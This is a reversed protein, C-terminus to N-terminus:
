SIGKLQRPSEGSVFRVALGKLNRNKRQLLDIVELPRLFITREVLLIGKKDQENIFFYDLETNGSRQKVEEVAEFVSLRSSAFIRATADRLSTHFGAFVEIYSSLLPMLDIKGEAVPLNKLLKSDFRTDQTLQKVDVYVGTTHYIKRPQLQVLRTGFDISHFPLGFHQVHDRLESVFSFDLNNSALSSRRQEAATYEPAKRGFLRSLHHLSQDFYQRGTTLLNIVRRSVLSRQQAASTYNFERFVRNHSTLDLVSAELEQYNELLLDFKEELYLIELIQDMAKLILEFENQTIHESFSQAYRSFM